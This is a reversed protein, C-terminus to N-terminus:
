RQLWGFLWGFLGKTQKEKEAMQQLRNQEQEMNNIQEQFMTKIEDDCDCEEKLEKFQQIRERNRNIEQEMIIAAARDGGSFFKLIKNRAQIREEARVTAELSNNFEKAIESVQPGIGGILDEMGLLSHVALRVQNQNQYIRRETEGLLRMEQNMEQQKKQIKEELENIKESVIQQQQTIMLQNEEGQNITQQQTQLQQGQENGQNQQEQAFVLSGSLFLVLSIFIFKKM